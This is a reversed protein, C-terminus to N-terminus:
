GGLVVLRKVAKNWFAVSLFWLVFVWVMQIILAKVLASGNIKQLYIMVPVYNVSGFPIFQLLKQFWEPFFVLPILQGSLFMISAGKLNVIGWLNTVYFSLLGFCFNFLFMIIFGLLASVVYCFITTINPPLEGLTTFRIVVIGIWMPISIVFVNFFVGGLTNFFLTLKYNLPKILNMAIIGEKVEFGIGVDINNDIIRATILSIFIYIIMQDATFGSLVPNESNMFIAKWLYYVIFMRFVDILIRLFFNVRYAMMRQITVKTFPIYTKVIKKIPNM